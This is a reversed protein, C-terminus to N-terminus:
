PQAAVPLLVILSGTHKTVGARAGAEPGTGFFVDGREPGTIASGVDQAVMLRSLGGPELGKRNGHTLTPSQVFIPTGLRHYSTDVALSRGPTLAINLAGVPADGALVRFFVYSKNHWLLTRAREPNARLWDGMVPLTLAEASFLGDNIMVRGVSTYPHGNKGDYTVRVLRGDRLRLLGSGQVQLFFAEVPDALYFLELGQGALAGTEIDERTAYPVLGEATRRLHTFAVGKNGRESETVVNELDAPRRLLPVVFPAVPEVSADILPEYYGTLLGQPGDHAVAHPRFHTEFFRRADVETVVITQSAVAAEFVRRWELEPSPAADSLLQQASVLFAAFASLLDDRAWGQLQSFPVERLTLAPSTM